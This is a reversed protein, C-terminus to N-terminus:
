KKKGNKKTEAEEQIMKERLALQYLRAIFSDNDKTYDPGLLYKKMEDLTEKPIDQDTDCRVNVNANEVAQNIKESM